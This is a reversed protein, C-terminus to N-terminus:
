VLAMGVVMAVRSFMKIISTYKHRITLRVKTNPDKSRQSALIALAMFYDEWPLVRDRGRRGSSTPSQSPDSKTPDFNEYLLKYYKDENSEGTAM